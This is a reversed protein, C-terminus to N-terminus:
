LFDKKDIPCTIFFVKKLSYKLQMDRIFTSDHVAFLMLSKNKSARLVFADFNKGKLIEVSTVTYHSSAWWYEKLMAKWHITCRDTYARAGTPTCVLMPRHVCSCRDTYARAVTPTRCCSHEDWFIDYSIFCCLRGKGFASERDGWFFRLCRVYPISM